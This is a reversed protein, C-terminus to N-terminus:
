LGRWERHLHVPAFVPVSTLFFGFRAVRRVRRALGSFSILAGSILSAAHFRRVVGKVFVSRPASAGVQVAAEASSLEEKILRWFFVHQERHAAKPRAPSSVKERISRGSARQRIM